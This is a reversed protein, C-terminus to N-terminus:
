HGAPQRPPPSATHSRRKPRTSPSARASPQASLERAARPDACTLWLATPTAADHWGSPGTRRRPASGCTSRSSARITTVPTVFPRASTTGALRPIVGYALQYGYLHGPVTGRRTRGPLSAARFSAHGTNTIAGVYFFCTTHDRPLYVKAWYRDRVRPDALWAAWTAAPIRILSPQGVLALQQPKDDETPKALGELPLQNEPPTLPDCRFM